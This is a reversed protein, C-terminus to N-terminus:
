KIKKLGQETITLVYQALEKLASGEVFLERWRWEPVEARARNLLRVDRCKLLGLVGLSFANDDSYFRRIVPLPLDGGELQDLTELEASM